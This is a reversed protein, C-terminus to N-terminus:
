CVLFTIVNALTWRSINKLCLFACDLLFQQNSHVATHVKWIVMDSCLKQKGCCESTSLVCWCSFYVLIPKSQKQSGAAPHAASPGCINAVGLGEGVGCGVVTLESSVNSLPASTLNVFKNFFGFHLKSCAHVAVPVMVAHWLRMWLFGAGLRVEGEEAVVLLTGYCDM